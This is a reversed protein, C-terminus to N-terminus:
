ENSIEKQLQPDLDKFEIIRMGLVDAVHRELSAGRSQEWGQLLVIEDCYNILASLAARLYWEYTQIDDYRAGNDHMEHPSIVDAGHARLVATAQTFAHYNFEPYGTM